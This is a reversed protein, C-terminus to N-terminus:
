VEVRLVDGHVWHGRDRDLRVGELPAVTPGWRVSEDPLAGAAGLEVVGAHSIMLVRAGEPLRDLEIAWRHALAEAASRIGDVATVSRVYEGFTSPSERELYRAVPEPLSGLEEWEADVAYGMAQATEVARAKPSTVVRDFHGSGAGVRRALAVGEPSLHVDGPSRLSHRRHILSRM